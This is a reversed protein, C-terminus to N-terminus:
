AQQALSKIRKLYDADRPALPGIRRDLFHTILEPETGDERMACAWQLWSMRHGLPRMQLTACAEDGALMHSFADQTADIAQALKVDDGAQNKLHAFFPEHLQKRQCDRLVQMLLVNHSGEWNEFVVNDRLLRPLVSFTEVTGNGALMEIGSQIVEHSSLASRTKNLNVATRVFALGADDLEGREVRDLMSALYLSGSTMAATESRMDALTEQVLPYKIIPAGFAGRHQAYGHAVVCARRAMASCGVGNFIRSTNIVQQMMNRFGHELPGLQWALAGDFDLEATPLTRTGLKDKLRRIHFHNLSGDPLRRPMLFLGLGPTGEGAGTPRATLVIVDGTVNSCFWKEGSIKWRQEAGDDLVASMSNSGVDSGGQVETLFQAGHALSRYDTDLLRPLYRQKLEDSGLAILSKIAGATCALPCNHGAEGNQCSLYFLTLAYLNNGPTGLARMVGSGYILQGAEHFAPHHEVAEVRAGSAAFRDLQPLNHGLNNQRAARDIPGACQAGFRTLSEAWAASRDDGGLHQLVRQAHPDAIWYNDPQAAEFRALDDRGDATDYRM